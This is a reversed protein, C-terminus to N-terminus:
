HLLTLKKDAGMRGYITMITGVIAGLGSLVTRVGQDLNTVWELEIHWGFMWNLLPNIAPIGATLSTVIVGWITMSRLIWKEM